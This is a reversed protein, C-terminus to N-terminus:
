FAFGAGLRLSRSGLEARLAIGSVKYVAGGAGQVVLGGYGSSSVGTPTSVSGFAFGLDVKPYLALKGDLLWFNWVAGALVVFENYSWGCDVGAVGCDFSFHNYDLGVDIGFDDHVKDSRLFGGPVLTKQFRAGLGFGTVSYAYGLLGFASITNDMSATSPSATVTTAPEPAPTTQAEVMATSLSCLFLVSPLKRM